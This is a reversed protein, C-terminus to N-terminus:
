QAASGSNSGAPAGHMAAGHMPPATGTLKQWTAEDVVQQKWTAHCGTCTQLTANLAVLVGARDRNHAAATIGDATKHFAMAQETFGPAAAGMHTCMMGMQESYGIRKAALEMAAFDDVVLAAMIGQVAELHERMNQKQHNAMMPLLPMPKRTDLQDLMGHATLAGAVPVTPAGSGLGAAAEASGTKSPTPAASKQTCAALAAGTVFILASTRIM